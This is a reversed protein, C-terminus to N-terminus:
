FGEATHRDFTHTWRLSSVSISALLGDTRSEVYSLSPPVPEPTQLSGFTSTPRFQKGVPPIEAIVQLIKSWNHQLTSITLRSYREVKNFASVFSIGPGSCTRHSDVEPTVRPRRERGTGPGRRVSDSTAKTSSKTPYRRRRCNRCQLCRPGGQACRDCQSAFRAFDHRRVELSAYVRRSRPSAVHLSHTVFRGKSIKGRARVSPFLTAPDHPLIGTLITLLAQSVTQLRRFIQFFKSALRLGVPNCKLGITRPMPLPSRSVTCRRPRIKIAQVLM